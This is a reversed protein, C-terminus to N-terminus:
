KVLGEIHIKRENYFMKSPGYERKTKEHFDGIIFEVGHYLKETANLYVSAMYEQMVQDAKEKATLLLGLTNTHQGFAKTLQTLKDSKVQKESSKKLADIKAKVHNSQENESKIKNEIFLLREKIALIKREFNIITKSGATAGVVGASIFSGARIYGGLLTGNHKDESGVVLKGQIDILSHMLQKEIRIDKLSTIEGYQCYKALINGKATIKVSMVVDDCTNQETDYKKGIIGGGIKIDGGAKVTASEVFGGVTVDGSAVVSMGETVDGEIIVSGTFTVNGSAVDVNKIKYVEEVEMGNNILKPVGIRKSVLVNKNKSCIATGEGSTLQIDNGPLAALPTAKVTYGEVGLTLPVKKILPDGVKVCIIDGLDRMNVSGNDKEKPRLIRTQASEVLPVISANKGNIAPKGYAIEHSVTTNPPASIALKALKILSDKCFGKKVGADQAALVIAKPTYHVGGQATTIEASAEMESSDINILITADTKELIQFTIERGKQDDQLPKLVDNLEAIANKINDNNIQYNTYESNSIITAITDETIADGGKLPMLHLDIHQQANEVLTVQTV